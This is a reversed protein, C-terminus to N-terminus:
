SHFLIFVCAISDNSNRTHVAVECVTFSRSQFHERVQETTTMRHLNSVKVGHFKKTKNSVEPESKKNDCSAAIPAAASGHKEYRCTVDSVSSSRSSVSSNTSSNEQAFM